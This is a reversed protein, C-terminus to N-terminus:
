PAPSQGHLYQRLIVAAAEADDGGGTEVTSYREDVREVPLGLRGALRNAFRECRATMAHPAGDPHLPIGVVLREAGWEDRLAGIAAFLRELPEAPLVVLPRATGTVTNGIAVGM